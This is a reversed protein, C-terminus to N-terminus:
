YNKPFIVDIIKIKLNNEVFCWRVKINNKMLIYRDQTGTPRGVGPYKEYDVRLMDVDCAALISLSMVFDEFFVHDMHIDSASITQIRTNLTPWFESDFIIERM